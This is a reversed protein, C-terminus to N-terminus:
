PGKRGLERLEKLEMELVAALARRTWDLDEALTRGCSRESPPTGLRYALYSFACVANYLALRNRSLSVGVVPEYVALAAELAEPRGFDLLYRFDHHRDAWAAGDFDFIGQVALTDPDLALNHLGIDAHVLALDSDDVALQEYMTLVEDIRTFLAPEAVVQPIRERIWDGPEPWAVQRRLWDAVDEYMIQSHLEALIRGIADGLRAALGADAGLHNYVRWPDQLGAVISRLDFGHDDSEYLVRPAQFSCRAELLRLVRREVVLRQLGTESAAFWAMREGPLRALWREERAEVRVQGPELRLGATQLAQCVTEPLLNEFLM